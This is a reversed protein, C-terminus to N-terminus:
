TRPKSAMEKNMPVTPNWRKAPWATISANSLEAISKPPMPGTPLIWDVGRYATQRRTRVRHQAPTGQRRLWWTPVRWGDTGGCTESPPLAPVRYENTIMFAAVCCCCMAFSCRSYQDFTACFYSRTTSKSIPGFVRDITHSRTVFSPWSRLRTCNPQPVPKELNCDVGVHRCYIIKPM